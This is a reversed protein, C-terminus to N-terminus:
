QEDSPPLDGEAVEEAAGGEFGEEPVVEPDEANMAEHQAAMEDFTPLDYYTFPNAFIEYRLVHTLDTITQHDLAVAKDDFYSFFTPVTPANDGLWSM